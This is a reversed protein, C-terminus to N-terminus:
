HPRGLITMFENAIREGDLDVTFFAQIDGDPNLLTIFSSHGVLYNDDLPEDPVEYIVGAASTLKDIESKTGTLGRFGPGFYAAYEGVKEPTDRQPDVSVLYYHITDAVGKDALTRAIRGMEVMSMPCVDPCYTYGFYLFSWAGTFDGTTFPEGGGDVLTFDPLARPEAVIFGSMEVPAGVDRRDAKFFTALVLTALLAAVTVAAASKAFPTM